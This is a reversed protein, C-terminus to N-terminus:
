REPDEEADIADVAYDGRGIAEIVTRAQVELGEAVYLHVPGVRYPGEGEGKMMVAIGEGELRAKTLHGEFIQNTSYVRVIGGSVGPMRGCVGKVGLLYQRIDIGQTSEM